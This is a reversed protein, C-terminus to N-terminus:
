GVVKINRSLILVEGRMDVGDYDDATSKEAGWHYYKLGAENDVKVDRSRDIQAVGTAPDYAKIHCDDSAVNDYSTPLLAVRDGEVLDLGKEVTISTAGKEAPALLRTWNKTRKKGFMRLKNVNAILKNGAEIANDYVIAKQDKEGFLEIKCNKEYPHDKQGINLEGARIFIHKAKFDIDIDSKFNLIGNVRVLRYIPTEPLDMTMNWGSEIHVDEGEVPLRKLPWNNVDSWLRV